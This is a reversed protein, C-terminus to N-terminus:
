GKETTRLARQKVQQWFKAENTMFQKFKCYDSIGMYDRIFRIYDSKSLGLNRVSFLLAGLDKILYRQPVKDRIQMRHLDILYINQGLLQELNQSVASNSDLVSTIESVGQINLLFHCIYYDRHNLGHLHMKRTVAAIYKILYKKLKFYNKHYKLQECIKDLELNPEISKTIIFSSHERWGYAAVDMTKINFRKIAEIAQRESMASTVPWKLSFINKIFESLTIKWHKKIFYNQNNICAKITVRSKVQRYIDGSLNFFYDFRSDQTKISKADLDNKINNDIIALINNPM